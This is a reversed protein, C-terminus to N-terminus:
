TIAPQILEYRTSIIHFSALPRLNAGIMATVPRISSETKEKIKTSGIMELRGSISVM